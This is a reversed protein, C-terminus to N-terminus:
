LAVTTHFLPLVAPQPNLADARRSPQVPCRVALQNMSQLSRAHLEVTFHQRINGHLVRRSECRQRLLRFCRRCRLLLNQTISQLPEFPARYITGRGKHRSSEPFFSPPLPLCFAPAVLLLSRPALPPTTRLLERALPFPNSCRKSHFATQ